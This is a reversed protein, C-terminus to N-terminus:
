SWRTKVVRYGRSELKVTGFITRFEVTPWGRRVRQIRCPDSIKAVNVSQIAIDRFRHSTTDYNSNSVIDSICFRCVSKLGSTSNRRFPAQVSFYPWFGQRVAFIEVCKNSISTALDYDAIRNWVYLIIVASHSMRLSLKAWIPGLCQTIPSNKVSKYAIPTVSDSDSTLIIVRLLFITCNHLLLWVNKLISGFPSARATTAQRRTTKTLVEDFKRTTSYIVAHIHYFTQLQISRLFQEVTGLGHWWM